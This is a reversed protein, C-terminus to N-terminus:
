DGNLQLVLMTSDDQLEESYNQVFDFIRHCFQSPDSSWLKVLEAKLNDMGLLDGSQNSIEYLGDTILVFSETPNAHVKLSQYTEEEFLGLPVGDTNIEIVEGSTNIKLVPCHGASTLYFYDEESPMYILQCTIFSEATHLDSYILRNVEQMLKGPDTALSIKSRLMTRLITALLASQVGKGMVDAIVLLTGQNEPLTIVDFFDGGIEYATRNAGFIKARKLVPYQSPLLSKQIRSGIELEQTIRVKDQNEKLLIHHILGVAIYDAVVRILSLEAASFKEKDKKRGVAMCGRIKGQFYIPCYFYHVLEIKKRDHYVVDQWFEKQYFSIDEPEVNWGEFVGVKEGLSTFSRWGDHPHMELWVVIQEPHILDSLYHISKDTFNKLNPTTALMEALHTVM